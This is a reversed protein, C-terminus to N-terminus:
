CLSDVDGQRTYGRDDGPVTGRRSCPRAPHKAPFGADEHYGIAVLREELSGFPRFREGKPETVSLSQSVIYMEKRVPTSLYVSVM